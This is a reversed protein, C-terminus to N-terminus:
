RSQSDGGRKRPMVATRRAFLFFALSIKLTDSRQGLLASFSLIMFFLKRQLFRKSFKDSYKKNYIFRLMFDDYISKFIHTKNVIEM